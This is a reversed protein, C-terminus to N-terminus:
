YLQCLISFTIVSRADGNLYNKLLRFEGQYLRIILLDIQGEELFSLANEQRRKLKIFNNVKRALTKNSSSKLMEGKPPSPLPTKTEPGCIRHLNFDRRVGSGILQAHLLNDLNRMRPNNWFYWEVSPHIFFYGHM